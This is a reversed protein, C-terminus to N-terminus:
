TSGIATALVAQGKGQRKAEYMAHDAATLIMTRSGQAASIPAIGISAGLRRSIDTALLSMPVSISAILSRAISLATTDYTTQPLIVVFEDGGLRGVFDGAQLTAQLRRAVEILAQDGAEHGLQDNIPKFGDLDIFLLHGTQGSGLMTDLVENLRVRNPLCTLSDHSALYEIRERAAVEESIDRVLGIFTRGRRGDVETVALHMPFIDGNKRRGSVQRGKGIIHATGEAQYRALYGDHEDRYPNPMLMNVNAGMVEAAKYGFIREAAKNFALMVGQANITIIGEYVNDLVGILSSQMTAIRQMAQIRADLVELNIPKTLYDDAGAAFGALLENTASLGTMIILPVWREGGLAKIRRTAEIGDMEPMVVDMLVLDPPEAQYAAVAARGDMVHIVRHGQEALVALIHAAVAPSDEAYLIRM